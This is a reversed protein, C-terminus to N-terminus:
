VIGIGSLRVRRERERQPPAVEDEGNGQPFEPGRPSFKGDGEREGMQVQAWGGIEEVARDLEDWRGSFNREQARGFEEECGGSNGLDDM